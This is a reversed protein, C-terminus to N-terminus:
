MAPSPGCTLFGTGTRRPSSSASSIGIRAAVNQSRTGTQRTQRPLTCDAASAMTPLATGNYTVDAARSGLKVRTIRAKVVVRRVREGSRRDVSARKLQDAAAQGRGIRCCRGKKPRKGVRRSRRGSGRSSPLRGGNEKAVAAMVQDFFSRPRGSSRAGHDRIRGVIPRFHSSEDQAMGSVIRLAPCCELGLV